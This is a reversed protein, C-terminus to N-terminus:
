AARLAGHVARTIAEPAHHERTLPALAARIDERGKGAIALRVQYLMDGLRLGLMTQQVNAACRRVHSKPMTRPM